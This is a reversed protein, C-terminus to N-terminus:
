AGAEQQFDNIYPKISSYCILFVHKETDDCDDIAGNFVKTAFNLMTNLVHNLIMWVNAKPRFAPAIVDIVKKYREQHDDYSYKKFYPSYYYRIFCLCKERNSLIFKWCSNFLVRCGTEFDLAKNTMTPLHLLLISVLEKDLMTFTEKFLDETDDFFRYLYAENLQATTTIARTTTKELGDRAIIQVTSNLLALRMEDQTM